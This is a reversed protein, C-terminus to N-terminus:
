PSVKIMITQNQKLGQTPMFNMNVKLLETESFNPNEPNSRVILGNEILVKVCKMIYGAGADKQKTIKQLLEWFYLQRGKGECIHFLLM